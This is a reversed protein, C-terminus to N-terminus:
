SFDRPRPIRPPRSDPTAYLPPPPPSTLKKITMEADLPYIGTTRFGSEISNPRYTLERAVRYCEIWDKRTISTPVSNFFSDLVSTLYRKLPGFLAVDLPQLKHSTHPPLCVPDISHGLCFSLFRSTIHSGHGDFILLRRKGDNRRTEPEFLNSLWEFAITDNTWGTLTTSFRWNRPIESPIWGSNVNSAKFIVLPPLTAGSARICEIATIWEKRGPEEKFNLKDERSILVKTSIRTGLAYGTEDFNFIADPPYRNRSVLESLQEFFANLVSYTLGEVRSSELSRSYVSDLEPYRKRFRDLWRKGLPNIPLDSTAFEARRSRIEFAIEKVRPLTIPNGLKALHKIYDVLIDEENNSLSKQSEHSEVRSKRDRLRASLTSRPIQTTNSCVRISSYVNNRLDALANELDEKTYSPM